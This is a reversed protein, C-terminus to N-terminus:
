ECGGDWFLRAGCPRTSQFRSLRTRRTLSGKLRAGCPRTSQFESLLLREDTLLTAGWMPAHISVNPVYIRDEKGSTAGWMPAHISVSMEALVFMPSAQRAGCPRKSQFRRTRLPKKTSFTAGWMPAHISVACRDELSGEPSTAGWMPAHISVHHFIVRDILFVPRAGRPRTSQFLECALVVCHDKSVRQAHIRGRIRHIGENHFRYDANCLPPRM